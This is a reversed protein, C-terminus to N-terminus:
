KTALHKKIWGGTVTTLTEYRSNIRKSLQIFPKEILYYTASSAAFVILISALLMIYPSVIKFKILYNLLPVGILEHLLYISFSIRGLYSAVFNKITFIKTLSIFILLAATYAIFYKYWIESFGYNNNYALLTIPLLTVVFVALCTVVEALRIRGENLLYKRWIFGFFMVSLSLPLAVPLKINTMYRAISMIFALAIFFYFNRFMAKESHLSKLWFLFVCLIYFILEIQLTWFVGLLDDIGIFRQFMTLNALLRLTGTKHGFATVALIILVWYLPYLRFFRSIAFRKINNSAGKQLSFPIVFGSVAFFIVVGTKGIDAAGFVIADIAKEFIGPFIINQSATGWLHAAMVFIAAIARLSDIWEFRLTHKDM